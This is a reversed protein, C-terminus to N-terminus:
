KHFRFSCFTQNFLHQDDWNVTPPVGVVMRLDATIGCTAFNFRSEAVVTLM